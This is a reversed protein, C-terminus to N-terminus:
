TKAKANDSNTISPLGFYYYVEDFFKTLIWTSPVDIDFYETMLGLEQKILYLYNCNFAHRYEYKSNDLTHRKTKYLSVFSCGMSYIRKQRHSLNHIAM